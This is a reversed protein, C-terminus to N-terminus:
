FMYSIVGAAMFGFTLYGTVVHGLALDGQNLRGVRSATIPGLIIQTVMGATALAMAVRHVMASDFRYPKPYPNPAFLALLGTTGFLTTTSISLGLHAKEYRGTFDGSQYKDYYNLHGIVTTAALGALTIFGIAQHSLLLARRVKVAREVRLTRALDEAPTAPKPADPMLDFSLDPAASAAPKQAPDAPAAAPTTPPTPAKDEARVALPVALLTITVLLISKARIM